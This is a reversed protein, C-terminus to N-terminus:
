TKWRRKLFRLYHCGQLCHNRSARTSLARRFVPKLPCEAWIPLSSRKLQQIVGNCCSSTSIPVITDWLGQIALVPELIRLLDLKEDWGTGGECPLVPIRLSRNAEIRRWQYLLLLDITNTKWQGVVTTFLIITTVKRGALTVSFKSWSSSSWVSIAM